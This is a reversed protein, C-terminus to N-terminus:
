YGDLQPMGNKLEFDQEKLDNRIEEKIQDLETKLVELINNCCPCWVGSMTGM